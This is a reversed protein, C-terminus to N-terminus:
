IHVRIESSSKGGYAQGAIRDPKRDMALVQMDHQRHFATGTHNESDRVLAANRPGNRLTQALMARPESNSILVISKFLLSSVEDGIQTLRVRELAVHRKIRIDIAEKGFELLPISTNVGQHM